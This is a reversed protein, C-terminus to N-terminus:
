GRCVTRTEDFHVVPSATIQQKISEETSKLADFCVRNTNVITSGAIDIGFLGSFLEATREYPLLQYCSLYTCIAKIRPGYQTPQSVGEPFLAENLHGCRPCLKDEARHEEVYVKIPPLDFVQRKRYGAPETDM